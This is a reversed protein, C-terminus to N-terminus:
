TPPAASDTSEMFTPEDTMYLPFFFIDISINRKGSNDDDKGRLSGATWDATFFLVNLALM